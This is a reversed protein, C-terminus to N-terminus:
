RVMAGTNLLLLTEALEPSTYYNDLALAYGQNIFPRLLSLVLKSPSKYDEFPKPLDVGECTGYDTSSGTCIIFSSPYGTSIERMM